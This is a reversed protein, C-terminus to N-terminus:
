NKKWLTWAHWRVKVESRWAWTWSRSFVGGRGCWLYSGGEGEGLGRGGEGEYMRSVCGDKLAAVEEVTQRNNSSTPIDGESTERLARNEDGCPFPPVALEDSTDGSTFSTDERSYWRFTWTSRREAMRALAWATARTSTAALSWARRWSAKKRSAKRSRTRSSFLSCRSLSRLAERARAFDGAREGM